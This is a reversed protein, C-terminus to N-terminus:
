GKLSFQLCKDKSARLRATLPTVPNTILVASLHTVGFTSARQDAWVLMLWLHLSSPRQRRNM